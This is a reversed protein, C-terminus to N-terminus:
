EPYNGYDLEVDNFYIHAHTILDDVRYRQDFVEQPHVDRLSDLIIRGWEPTIPWFVVPKM